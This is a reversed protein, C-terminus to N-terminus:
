RRNPPRPVLMNPFFIKEGVLMNPFFIKEGIHKHLTEPNLRTRRSYNARPNSVLNQVGRAM